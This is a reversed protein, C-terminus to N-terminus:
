RAETAIQDLGRELLQRVIAARPSQLKVALENLRSLLDVSIPTHLNTTLLSETYRFRSRAPKETKTEM